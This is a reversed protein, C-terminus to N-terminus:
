GHEIERTLVTIDDYEGDLVDAMFRLGTVLSKRQSESEFTLTISESKIGLLKPVAIVGMKPGESHIEIMSLKKGDTGAKFVMPYGFNTRKCTLKM